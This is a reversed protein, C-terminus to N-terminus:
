FSQVDVVDQLERHEGRVIRRTLRIQHAVLRDLIEFTRASRGPRRLLLGSSNVVHVLALVPRRGIELEARRRVLGGSGSAVDPVVVLPRDDLALEVQTEREAHGVGVGTGLRGIAIGDHQDRV